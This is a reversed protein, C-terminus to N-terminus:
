KTFDDVRASSVERWLQWQGDKNKKFIVMFTDNLEVPNGEADTYYVSSWGFDYAMSDNLILTEYPHMRISDYHFLGKPEELLRRYEAWDASGPGIAKLDPHSYKVLDDYRKEDMAATFNNRLVEIAELEAAIDIEKSPSDSEADSTSQEVCSMALGLILILIIVSSKIKKM